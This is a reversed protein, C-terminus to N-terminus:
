LANNFGCKRANFNAAFQGLNCASRRTVHVHRYLISAGGNGHNNPAARRHRETQFIPQFNNHGPTEGRIGRATIILNNDTFNFHRANARQQFHQFFALALQGGFPQKVRGPFLWQRPQRPANTDHGTRGAGCELVNLVTQAFTKRHMHNQIRGGDLPRGGGGFHGRTDFIKVAGFVDIHNDNRAPAARQFIQQGKGFFNNDARGRGTFDRQYRTDSMFRVPHQNVIRRIKTRWCGGPGGFGNDRGLQRQNLIQVVHPVTKRTMKCRTQDIGLLTHIRNIDFAWLLQDHFLGLTQVIDCARQGDDHPCFHRGRVLFQIGDRCERHNQFIAHGAHGLRDRM